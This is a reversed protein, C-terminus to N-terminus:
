IKYNDEQMHEPMNDRLLHSWILVFSKINNMKKNKTSKYLGQEELIEM